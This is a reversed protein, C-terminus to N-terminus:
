RLRRSGVQVEVEFEQECNPCALDVRRSEEVGGPEQGKGRLITAAGAEYRGEPDARFRYGCFPCKFVRLTM